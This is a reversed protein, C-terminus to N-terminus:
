TNKMEDIFTFVERAEPLDGATNEIELDVDEGEFIAKSDMRAAVEELTVANKGGLEVMGIRDMHSAIWKTCFSLSIFSFKSKGGAHVVKGALMDMLPGKTNEKSYIVGLRVILNSGFNCIQEAAAKHRGYVTDAQCRASISSIQIFKKYKWGYVFDATKKVTEIFDAERNNEAWFKGSPMACNIVVDFEAAKEAEYTELTVGTVQFEQNSSLEKYLASGVYGASGIIAIRTKM